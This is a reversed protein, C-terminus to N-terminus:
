FEARFLTAPKTNDIPLDNMFDNERRMRQEAQASYGWKFRSDPNKLDPDAQRWALEEQERERLRLDAYVAERMIAQREMGLDFPTQGQNNNRRRNRTPIRAIVPQRDIGRDVPKTARKQRDRQNLDQM